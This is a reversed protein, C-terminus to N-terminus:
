TARQEASEASRALDAMDQEILKIVSKMMMGSLPSMLKAFFSIPEAGFEMTVDTGEGSPAFRFVSRYRAGCSEAETVYHEGPVYETIEMEETAEKGFM